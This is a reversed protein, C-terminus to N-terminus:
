YTSLSFSVRHLYAWLLLRNPFALCWLCARMAIEDGWLDSALLFLFVSALLAFLLSLLLGSIWPALGTPVTFFRILFPLLPFFANSPEGAHYGHAALYLYHQADWTQYASLLTPPEQSPDHFNALYNGSQFPFLRYGLFIVGWISLKVLFTIGLVRALGKQM